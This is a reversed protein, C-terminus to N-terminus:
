FEEAKAFDEPTPAFPTPDLSYGGGDPNHKDFHTNFLYEGGRQIREYAGTRYWNSHSDDAGEDIPNPADCGQAVHHLEHLLVHNHATSLVIHAGFLHNCYATGAVKRDWGPPYWSGPRTFVSYGRMQECKVLGYAISMDESTQLEELDFTPDLQEPKGEFDGKFALGCRSEFLTPAVPMCGTLLLLAIYKM